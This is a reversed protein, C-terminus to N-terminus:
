FLAAATAAALVAAVGGTISSSSGPMGKIEVVVEVSEFTTEADTLGKSAPAASCSACCMEVVAPGTDAYTCAGMNALETCTSGGSAAKVAADDGDVCSAASCSACCMKVVAPGTDANGNLGSTCAGATALDTCTSGGSAAMVTADDGDVCRALLACDDSDSPTDCPMAKGSHDHLVAATVLADVGTVVADAMGVVEDEVIVEVHDFGVLSGPEGNNNLKIGLTDGGNATGSKVVVTMPQWITPWVGSAGAMDNTWHVERIAMYDKGENALYSAGQGQKPPLSAANKRFDYGVYVKGGEDGNYKRRQDLFINV